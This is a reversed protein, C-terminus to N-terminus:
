NKHVPSSKAFITGPPLKVWDKPNMKGVAAAWVFMVLFLLVIFLALVSSISSTQFTLAEDIKVLVFDVGFINAILLLAMLGLPTGINVATNQSINAAFNDLYNVFLVPYIALDLAYNVFAAGNIVFSFRNGFAKNVWEV